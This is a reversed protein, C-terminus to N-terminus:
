PSSNNKFGFFQRTWSDLAHSTYVLHDHCAKRELSLRSHVIFSTNKRASKHKYLLNQEELCSPPDCLAFCVNRDVYITHYNMASRTTCTSVLPSIVMERGNM